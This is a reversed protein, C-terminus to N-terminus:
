EGIGEFVRDVRVELSPPIMLGFAQITKRNITLEIKDAREVPLDQPRAGRLIKAVLRAAQVGQARQDVGYSAVGGAQVWFSNAFIAPAVVYLNLNLVLATIDLNPIAPALIVDRPGATRLERVAETQTEVSRAEVRIRLRPATELAKRAAAASVPDQAHYVALVRRLNPVLEKAIELRKPVLDVILDSIGTLQGGPHSLSNVLGIAVPDGIKTFVVPIRPAAASAARAEHEGVTVIVDPKGNAVVAALKIAAAQEGQTPRIDFVLDRGEQLGEARLGAKLGQITPTAVTPEGNLIGVRHLQKAAQSGATSPSIMVAILLATCCMARPNMTRARPKTRLGIPAALLACARM